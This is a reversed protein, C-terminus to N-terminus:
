YGNSKVLKRELGLGLRKDLEFRGRPSLRLARTQRMRVLWGLECLRSLIIRGLPGSLHPRRETWDPCYRGVGDARLRDPRIELDLEAIWLRGAETLQCYKDGLEVILKQQQMRAVLHVALIGALHNYCSRAFRFTKAEESEPWAEYSPRAVAGLAEIAFGVEASAIRYYRHRGQTEVKLV